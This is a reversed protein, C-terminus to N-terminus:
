EEEEAIRLEAGPWEYKAAAIAEGQKRRTLFGDPALGLNDMDLDAADRYFDAHWFGRQDHSIIVLNNM